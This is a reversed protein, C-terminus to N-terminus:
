QNGVIILSVRRNASKDSSIPCCKGMGMTTIRGPNVGKQVLINRAADARAQSLNLNMQESGVKDTHGEIRVTTNPYQNLVNAVRDMEQYGGPKMIASGSDFMVDSKFTAVVTQENARTVYAQNQAISSSMAQQLAQDQDDMYKGILNGTVGGALAGIAAGTLIRWPGGGTAAGVAAGAAAGGVAGVGTGTQQKSAGACGFIFVITILIAILKKM